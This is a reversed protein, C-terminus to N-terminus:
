VGKDDLECRQPFTLNRLQELAKRPLLQDHFALFVPMSRQLSGNAISVTRAFSLVTVDHNSYMHPKLLSEDTVVHLINSGEGMGIAYHEYENVDLEGAGLRYYIPEGDVQFTRLWASQEANTNLWLDTTIGKGNWYTGTEQHIDSIYALVPVNPLMLYYGIWTLGKYAEHEKLKFSVRIGSWLNGVSDKMKVFSTGREAKLVANVHLDEFSDSMGGLWPNWWSKPEYNPLASVLWSQGDVEVRCLGPYYDSAAEIRIRGNFCEHLSYGDRSYIRERVPEASVPFLVSYFQSQLTGLKASLQVLHAKDTFVPISMEVESEEDEDSLVSIALVQSTEGKNLYGVSVEGDWVNQKVDNFKVQMESLDPDIFSNGGNTVYEIDPTLQLLSDDESSKLAYARFAKWNDFGGISLTIAESSRKEGHALCGMEYELETLWDALNLQYTDPWCLGISTSSRRSYIWPETIKSGDWYDYDSSHSNATEIYRGEYPLVVRHMDQSIRQSLSFSTSAATDGANELEQWLKVTGDGHVLAYNYLIIGPYADSHYTHKIGVAGREELWETSSPSKKSFESAYPKGIRPFLVRIRDKANGICTIFTHSHEKDYKIVHKGNVAWHGENDMGTIMAGPGSFKGGIERYFEVEPGNDPIARIMLKTEYFGYDLLRYPVPISAREAEDLRIRFVREELGLWSVEPLEFLFVAPAPMHSEIDLYFTYTGGVAHLIDPAKLVIKAPHKPVVGVQLMAEAGNIRIRTRVTPCTRWDSQEEEIAGVFYSATLSQETAVHVNEQWNFQINRDNEGALEVHLPAGSKNELKYQISYAKGFVPKAQEAEASIKYDDTEILCIGRGRREIDVRVNREDKSWSYTYTQFGNKEQGDRNVEITRTSDNYWDIGKMYPALAECNMIQPIFNMFHTTDERDEWFFGCKKYLPVAKMNSEWTYLDIRPWGRQITEEVARLVLQKGIKHGHYDPRVNLIHIYLAGTDERYECVSCYGIVQEDCIALFVILADSNEEENRIQAGTYISTNGGWHEQSRNWMEAISDAYDPHYAAISVISSM